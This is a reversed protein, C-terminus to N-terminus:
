ILSNGHVQISKDKHLHRAHFRIVSGFNKVQSNQFLCESTIKKKLPSCSILNINILHGSYM